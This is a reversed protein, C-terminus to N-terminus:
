GSLLAPEEPGSDQGPDQDPALVEAHVIDVMTRTAAEAASPSRLTIAEGLARHAAMSRPDPFDGLLGLRNRETLIVALTDSFAMIHDNGSSTVLLRHFELDAALFEESIGQGLLGMRTMTEALETMRPGVDAPASCASLRAAIPEIGARLQMLQDLEETRHVGSLRWRIVRPDSVRWNSRSLVVNGIRRKMAVMGLTELVRVAERAVTRSSQTRQMVDDLIVATGASLEGNVIAQGIQEVVAQHLVPAPM